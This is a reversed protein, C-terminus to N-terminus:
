RCLQEPASTPVVRFIVGWELVGASSAFTKVCGGEIVSPSVPPPQGGSTLFVSGGWSGDVGGAAGSGGHGFAVRLSAASAPSAGELRGTLLYTGPPLTYQETRVASHTATGQPQLGKPCTSPDRDASCLTPQSVSLAAPSALVFSVAIPHTGPPTQSVTPRTPSSDSCASLMVVALVWQPNRV